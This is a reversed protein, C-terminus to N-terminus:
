EDDPAKPTATAEGAPSYRSWRFSTDPWQTGGQHGKVEFTYTTGNELDTVTVSTDYVKTHDSWDEGEVRMRWTYHLTADEYWKPPLDNPPVWDTWSLEVQGDGPTATVEPTSGWGGSAAAPAALGTLLLALAAAWLATPLHRKAAPLPIFGLM